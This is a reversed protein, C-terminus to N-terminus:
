PQPRGAAVFARAAASRVRSAGRCQLKGVRTLAATTRLPREDLPREAVRARAATGTAFIRANAAFVACAARASGGDAARAHRVLKSSFGHAQRRLGGIGVAGAAAAVGQVAC